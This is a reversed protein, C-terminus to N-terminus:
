VVHRSSTGTALAYALNLVLFHEDLAGDFRVAVRKEEGRGAILACDQFSTAFVFERFFGACAM